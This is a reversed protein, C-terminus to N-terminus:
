WPAGGYWQCALGLAVTPAFPLGGAAASGEAPKNYYVSRSALSVGLMGLWRWMYDALEHRAALLVLGLVGGILVAWAAAGLLEQPGLWAGLVMLAKVDGAGLGGVAYPGILLAFGLAAGLGSELLGGTSGVKASLFIAFVFSPFTLVNPIRENRVDSAVALFLFAAAWGFIPLPVSGLFGAAAVILGLVSALGWSFIASRENAIPSHLQWIAPNM